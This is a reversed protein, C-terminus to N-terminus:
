GVNGLIEPYFSVAVPYGVFAVADIATHAVILPALRKTRAYFYGFILGMLFNGIFAAFGQYLHYTARILAQLLIIGVMPIRLETLRNFLYGVAIVEELIGARLALLLLMPVTWWHADLASPVVTVGLDLARGALYLGLGPIGILAALGMGSALDFVPRRTDLGLAGLRPSRPQWLLFVVLAVPVLSSTIGLIQYLFDAWEFESQSRNLTATQESLRVDRAVRVAIGVLSYLSSIGLSLGFVIFIEALLRRRSM